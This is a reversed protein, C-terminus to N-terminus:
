CTSLIGLLLTKHNIPHPVQKIGWTRDVVLGQDPIQILMMWLLLFIRMMRIMRCLCDAQVEQSGLDPHVVLLSSALSGGLNMGVTRLRPVLRCTLM